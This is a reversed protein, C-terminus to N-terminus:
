VTACTPFRRKPEEEFVEFLRQFEQNDDLNSIFVDHHHDPPPSSALEFGADSLRRGTTFSVYRGRRPVDAIYACLRRMLEEVTEGPELSMAFTSVSARPHPSGAAAADRMSRVADDSLKAPTWSWVRAVLLDDEDLHM